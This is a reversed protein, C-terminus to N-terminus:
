LLQRLENLTEERKGPPIIKKEVPEQKVIKNGNSKTVADAVKNELSEGSKHVVKKSATKVVDLGIDM